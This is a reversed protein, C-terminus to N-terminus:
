IVFVKYLVHFRARKYMLRLVIYKSTYMCQLVQSRIVPKILIYIGVVDLIEYFEVSM